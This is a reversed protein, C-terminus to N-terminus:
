TCVLVAHCPHAGSQATKCSRRAAFRQPCGARRAPAWRLAGTNWPFRQLQPCGQVGVLVWSVTICSSPQNTCMEELRYGSTNGAPGRTCTEHTPQTKGVGGLRYAGVSQGEGCIGNGAGKEGNDAGRKGEGRRDGDMVTVVGGRGCGKEKAAGVGAASEGFQRDGEAKRASGGSRQQRMHGAGFQRARNATRNYPQVTRRACCGLCPCTSQWPPAASPRRGPPQRLGAAARPPVGPCM